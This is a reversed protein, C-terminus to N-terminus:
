EYRETVDSVVGFKLVKKYYKIERGSKVKIDVYYDNPILDETYVVFFNKLFGKEIPQYDFVTLERNGDMIYIRYEGSDILAMKDTEFEKRFDVTVERIEGRHLDEADNIGYVDPVLSEKTSVVHGISIFRKMPQVEFELEVDEIREGNLVLNGWTDYLITENDVDESLGSIVAYYVGKQAQKVPYSTENITCTPLEDLNQPIGDINTYLYLKNEKGSCFTARSDNISECYICEVYPHFFTNTHDTFFGVYQPMEIKNEEFRPTFMLMIGYNPTGNIIDMVYDTIDLNLNEHGFDFHQVDLILSSAGSNFLAVENKIEEDSYVGGELNIRVRTNGSMYWIDKGVFNLNPNTLDIKDEDVPWVKGNECYNWNSGETSLERNNNIWFDSVYSFGRGGDFDCPLRLAILDFSTARQRLVLGNKLIKEYPYGDVSFCNTMRLKFTLKSLDAFTKDEVLKLIETEDFHILGRSLLGSGYNLELVPNLGVNALPVNKYITNTKDLFFHRIM